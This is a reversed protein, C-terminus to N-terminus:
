QRNSGKILLLVVSVVLWLITAGVGIISPTYIINLAVMVIAGLLFVIGYIMPDDSLALGIIILVAFLGIFILNSGYIDSPKKALSIIARGIIINNKYLSAVVTGNGFSDPVTCELTGGSSYYSQSCVETDGLNDFLTANLLITAPIGSTIANTSSIKRNEKDYTLTFSVGNSYVFSSPLVSSSYSNLNIACETLTPLQCNAVIDSFSALVLGDKSIIINYIVDDVVLHGITYGETGTKPLEITKYMGEDIYKRQIQMIAGEVGVFNADKYTIKFSQGRSANLNYLPITVNYSTYNLVYNQFHYFEVFRGLSSYEIVGDMRYSSNAIYNQLCVRAPNTVDFDNSYNYLLSGASTDYFSLTLKISTNQPAAPTLQTQFDEDYLTMNFLQFVYVSCDDIILQGVSQNYSDSKYSSDDTFNVQWYFSINSLAKVLPVSIDHSVVQTDTSSFSVSYGTNNYNLYVSSLSVGANKSFNMKFPEISGAVANESYSVSNVKFNTVNLYRISSNGQQTENDWASCSWNYRGVSGLNITQYLELFDSGDGSQTYNVEEDINLTINEIENTTSTASCNFLVNNSTTNYYKEPSNSTTVPLTDVPIYTYFTGTGGDYLTALEATTLDRNWVYLEDVWMNVPKTGTWHPINLLGAGGMSAYDSGVEDLVGNLYCFGGSANNIITLMNKIGSKATSGVGGCIWGAWAINTDTSVYIYAGSAMSFFEQVSTTGNYWFNMTFDRTAGDSFNFISNSQNVVLNDSPTIHLCDGSVCDTSNYAPTGAGTEFSLNDAIINSGNEFQFVAILDTNFSETWAAWEPIKVGFLEPIWEIHDNTYVDTFIGITIEGKPLISEKNLVEWGIIDEKNYGIIEKICVMNSNNNFDAACIENYIPVEREGTKVKYKYNFEKDIKKDNNNRDYFDMDNAWNDYVDYTEVSFEAVLRDEGRFVKNIQPTDLKMIAIDGGLGLANVITIEGLEKDVQKINDWEWVASVFSLSFLIFLSVVVGLLITRRAQIPTNARHKIM